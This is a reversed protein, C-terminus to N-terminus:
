LGKGGRESRAANAVLLHHVLPGEAPLLQDVPRRAPDVVGDGGVAVDEEVLVAPDGSM